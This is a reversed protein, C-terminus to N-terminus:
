GGLEQQLHDVFLRIKQPIARGPAYLAYLPHTEQQLRALLPKLRGSLLDQEVVYLPTRIIGLGALAAERLLRNNNCSFDGSVTVRQWSNEDGFRWEKWDLLTLCNHERLQEPTEPMGYTALYEPAACCVYHITTLQRAIWEEPPHDTLRIAVDFGQDVLDATRNNAEINLEIGPYRARFRQLLPYLCYESFAQPATIRLTGQVDLTSAALAQLTDYHWHTLQQCRQLLLKGAETLRVRRTTRYFLQTNLQKELKRIQNSVHSKSLALQEAAATFSGTKAVQEFLPACSLLLDNM